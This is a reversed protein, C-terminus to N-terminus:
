SSNYLYNKEKDGNDKNNRSLLILDLDGLDPNLSRKVHSMLMNSMMLIHKICALFMQCQDSENVFTDPSLPTRKQM